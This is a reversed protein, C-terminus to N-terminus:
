IVSLFISCVTCLGEAFSRIRRVFALSLNVPFVGARYISYVSVTAMNEFSARDGNPDTLWLDLDGNSEWELKVRLAQSCGENITDMVFVTDDVTMYGRDAPDLVAFSLIGKSYGIQFDM